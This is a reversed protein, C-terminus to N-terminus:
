GEGGEEVRGRFVCRHITEEIPGIAFEVIISLQLDEGNTKMIRELVAEAEERAEAM